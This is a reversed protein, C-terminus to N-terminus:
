LEYKQQHYTGKVAQDPDLFRHYREALRSIVDEARGDAFNAPQLYKWDHLEAPFRDQLENMLKDLAPFYQQVRVKQEVTFEAATEPRSDARRSFKRPRREPTDTPWNVGLQDALRQAVIKAADWAEDTRLESVEAKLCTVKELAAGLDITVSQLHKSVLKVAVLVPRFACLCLLFPVSTVANKLGIATSVISSDDCTDIVHELTQVAARLVVPNTYLELTSARSDWRTDSMGRGPALPRDPRSPGSAAGEDGDEPESEVELQQQKEDVAAAEAESGSSKLIEKQANLFFHIRQGAKIFNV